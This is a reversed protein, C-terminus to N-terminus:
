ERGRAGSETVVIVFSPAFFTQMGFLSSVTLPLRARSSLQTAQQFIESVGSETKGVAQMFEARTSNLPAFERPLQYSTIPMFARFSGFGEKQM